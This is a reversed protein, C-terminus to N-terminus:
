PGGCVRETPVAANEALTITSIVLDKVVNRLKVLSFLALVVSLAVSNVFALTFKIDWVLFGDHEGETLM